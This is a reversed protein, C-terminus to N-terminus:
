KLCLRWLLPIEELGLYLVNVWEKEKDKEREGLHFYLHLAHIFCPVENAPKMDLAHIEGHSEHLIGQRLDVKSCLSAGVVLTQYRHLFSGSLPFLLHAQHLELMEWAAEPETGFVGLYCKLADNASKQCLVQAFLTPM